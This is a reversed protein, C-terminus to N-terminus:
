FKYSAELWFQRGRTYETSSTSLKEKKNFLNKIDSKLILQHNNPLKHKYTLSLDVKLIDEHEVLEYVSVDEFTTVGTSPNQEKYSATRGTSEIKKYSTKYKFFTHIDFKPHTYRYIFKIDDPDTESAKSISGLLVFNGNYSVVATSDTDLDVNDDYTENTRKTESRAFNIEFNHNQFSRGYSLRLSEHTSYGDNSLTYYRYGDSEVQGYVKSFAKKTDREIWKINLDGGFLKQNLSFTIEDSYPPKM